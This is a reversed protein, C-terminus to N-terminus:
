THVCVQTCLCMCLRVTGCDTVGTAFLILGVFTLKKFVYWLDASMKIVIQSYQIFHTQLYLLNLFDFVILPGSPNDCFCRFPVNLFM